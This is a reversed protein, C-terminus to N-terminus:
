KRVFLGLVPRHDSAVAEPLVILPTVATFGSVFFHDIEEAPKGAPNTLAPASKPVATLVKGFTQFTASDPGDNFDGCLIIPIKQDSLIAALKEAQSLRQVGDLDLHVSLFKMDTGKISITAEFAIRPEGKGPLPHVKTEGIPHRSLIVQGYGGGQFDMAKGFVGKLGTLKALEAPQDVKGTRTCQNDVEQLAVLDPNTAVIIRAIRPLDLKGDVGVGHHLNWCLVRLPPTEAALPSVVSLLVFAFKVPLLVSDFPRAKRSLVPIGPLQNFFM